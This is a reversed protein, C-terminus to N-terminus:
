EEVKPKKEVKKVPIPEEEKKPLPRSSLPDEDEDDAAVVM